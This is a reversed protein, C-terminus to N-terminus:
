LVVSGTGVAGEWSLCQLCSQTTCFPRDGRWCSSDWLIYKEVGEIDGGRSLGRCWFNLLVLDM